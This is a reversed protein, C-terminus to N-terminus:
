RAFSMNSIIIWLITGVIVLFSALLTCIFGASKWNSSKPKWIWRSALVAIWYAAGFCLGLFLLVFVLLLIASIVDGM